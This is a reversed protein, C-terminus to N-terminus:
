AVRGRQLQVLIKDLKRSMALVRPDQTGYKGVMEELRYRMLVAQLHLKFIDIV